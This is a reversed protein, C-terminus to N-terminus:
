QLIIKRTDIKVNSSDYMELFYIGKGGFNNLDLTLLQHNILTSFVPQALVNVIRLTYTNMSSLNDANIILQGMTPNPFIKIANLNIIPSQVGVSGIGNYRVISYDTNLTQDTM